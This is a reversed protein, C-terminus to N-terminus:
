FKGKAAVEAKRKAMWEKTSDSDSPISSGKSTGGIQKIPAPAKSIQKEAPKATNSFKALAAAMKLPPLSLIHQADEPHDALAAILKHGDPILDPDTIIAMFEPSDGAGLAAVENCKDMFEASGFDKNGAEIFAKTRTQAERQAMKAEARQDILQEFQQPDFPKQETEADPTKFRALEAEVRERAQKEETKQRTLQDIRDQYWPKRKPKEPEPPAEAAKEPEAEVEASAEPKEEAPIVTEPIAGDQQILTSEPEAAQGPESM